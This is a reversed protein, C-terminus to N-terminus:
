EIVEDALVLLNHPITLGLANATKLNIVLEFRTPQEVPIDGPKTGRLIKDVYDAARLFLARYDPGYSMLGGAEVFERGSFATPLRVGVALATIRTRNSTVLANDVVYLADVKLAEFAPAIDDTRRIGLPAIELGVTRAAAQAESSEKVSAPYGADFLIALRRLGPVAERLLELRKSAIDTGQLSLGTVNGGPRSLNAVLGGGVPDVALAFVIPIDPMAQKFAAAAGGYTIIVDVKQRAFEGAVEAVREPRGESWRYEIVITRGDIWGLQRLREAFAATWSSWSPADSGLFGITPLKGTQARAALPWTAASAAISKVFDRRRM